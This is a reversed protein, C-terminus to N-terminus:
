LALVALILAAQGCLFALLGLTDLFMKESM